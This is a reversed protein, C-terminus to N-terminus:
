GRARLDNINGDASLLIALQRSGQFNALLIVIAATIPASIFMGFVGWISGWFLLSAMVLISSINFSNALLRPELVSGIGQQIILLGIILIVWNTLTFDPDVLFLVIPWM